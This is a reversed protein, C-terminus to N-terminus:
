KQTGVQADILIKIALRKRRLITTRMKCKWLHPADSSAAIYYVLYYCALPLFVRITNSCKNHQEEGNENQKEINHLQIM